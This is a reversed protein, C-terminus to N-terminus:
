SHLLFRVFVSIHFNKNQTVHTTHSQKRGLGSVDSKTPSWVSHHHTSPHYVVATTFTAANYMEYRNRTKWTM